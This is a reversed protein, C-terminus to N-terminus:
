KRDLMPSQFPVRTQSALRQQLLRAQKADTSFGTSLIDVVQQFTGVSQPYPTSLTIIGVETLAFILASRGSFGNAYIKM